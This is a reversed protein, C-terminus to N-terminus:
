WDISRKVTDRGTTWGYKGTQYDVGFHLQFYRMERAGAITRGYAPFPAADAPAMDFFNVGNELALSM